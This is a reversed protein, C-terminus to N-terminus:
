RKGLICSFYVSDRSDFSFRGGNTSAVWEVFKECERERDTKGPNHMGYNAGAAFSIAAAFLLAVVWGSTGM